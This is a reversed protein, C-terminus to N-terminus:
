VEERKIFVYINRTLSKHVRQEHKEKMILPLNESIKELNIEEPATICLFRGTKLVRALEPLSEEYLEKTEDGGTSAQRGYPPDTAIADVKGIELNRADGVKLDFNSINEENLNKEAGEVLEPNIDVGILNAGTLGAELLLGGVGCFPDLFDGDKPTRALNVLARALNPQMTSPHVVSREQPKREAFSTRNIKEKLLSLVCKGESLVGVIENKPYELDIEYDYEEILLDAIEKELDQTDAEKSYDKVRKVRIAIPKSQPLFDVLDSSGIFDFLNDFSATCFHEGIWHCMGLRRSLIPASANTKLILVQDLEEVVEYDYNEAKVSAKVESSPITSHEGSLLFTFRNM